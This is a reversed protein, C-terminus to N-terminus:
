FSNSIGSLEPKIDNDSYAIQQLKTPFNSVRNFLKSSDKVGAGINVMLTILHFPIHIFFGNNTSGSPDRPKFVPKLSALSNLMKKTFPKSTNKKIRKLGVMNEKKPFFYPISVVFLLLIIINNTNM